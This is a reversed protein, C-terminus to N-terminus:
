HTTCFIVAVRFMVGTASAGCVHWVGPACEWHGHTHQCAHAAGGHLGDHTTM